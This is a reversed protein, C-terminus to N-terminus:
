TRGDLDICKESYLKENETQALFTNFYKNELQVKVYIRYELIIQEFMGRRLVTHFTLQKSLNQEHHCYRNDM